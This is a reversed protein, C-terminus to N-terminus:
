SKEGSGLLGGLVGLGRALRSKVTGLPAGTRLAIERATMGDFYTWELVERVGPEVRGLADRVAIGDVAETFRASSELVVEPDLDATRRRDARGLRDFARSRLRVALWTRVSGRAPDYERVHEWAELFVDHVLDQAERADGLLRVALAGLVPAHRDYLSGFAATDGRRAREVLGPDDPVDHDRTTASYALAV